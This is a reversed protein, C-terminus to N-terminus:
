TGAKSCQLIDDLRNSIVVTQKSKDESDDSSASSSVNSLFSFSRKVPEGCISDVSSNSSKREEPLSNVDKETQSTCSAM